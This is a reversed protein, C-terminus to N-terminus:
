EIATWFALAITLIVAWIGAGIAMNVAGPDGQATLSVGLATLAWCILVFIILARKTLTHLRDGRNRPRAM